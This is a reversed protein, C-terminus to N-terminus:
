KKNALVAAETAHVTESAVM